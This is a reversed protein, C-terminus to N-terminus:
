AVLCDIFNVITDLGRAYFGCKSHLLKESNNRARSTMKYLQKGQQELAERGRSPNKESLYM